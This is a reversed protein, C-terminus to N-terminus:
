AFLNYAAVKLRVMLSNFYQLAFPIKPGYIRKIAGDLFQFIDITNVVVEASVKLRVMLSNFYNVPIPNYYVKQVKLRVM